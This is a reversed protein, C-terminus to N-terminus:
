KGQKYKSFILNQEKLVKEGDELGFRIILWIAFPLTLIIGLPMALFRRM